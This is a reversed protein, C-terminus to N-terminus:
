QHRLQGFKRSRAKHVQSTSDHEPNTLVTNLYGPNDIADRLQEELFDIWSAFNLGDPALRDEDRIQSMVASIIALTHCNKVMTAMPRPPAAPPHHTRDTTTKNNIKLEPTKITPPRPTKVPPTFQPEQTLVSNTSDILISKM